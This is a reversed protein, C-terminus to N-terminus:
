SGATALDSHMRSLQSKLSGDYIKSGIRTVMGGILSPQVEFTVRVNRGTVKSLTAETRRCLEPDLPSPTTVTATVIQQAKEKWEHFIAALAPMMAARGHDLIVGFFRNMKLGFDPGSGQAAREVAASFIAAKSEGSVAPDFLADRIDGASEMAGALARLLDDAINQDTRDPLSELLARAYRTALKQDKM